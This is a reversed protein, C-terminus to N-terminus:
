DEQTTPAPDPKPEAPEASRIIAHIRQRSVGIRGALTALSIEEERWIRAVAAARLERAATAIAEARVLLDDAAEFARQPDPMDIVTNAAVAYADTLKAIAATM